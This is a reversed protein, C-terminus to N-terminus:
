SKEEIGGDFRDVDFRKEKFNQKNREKSSDVELTKRKNKWM